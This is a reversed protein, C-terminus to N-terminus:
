WPDAKGCAQLGSEPSRPDVKQFLTSHFNRFAEVLGLPGTMMMDGGPAPYYTELGSDKMIYRNPGTVAVMDLRKVSGPPEDLYFLGHGPAMYPDDDRARGACFLDLYSAFAPGKLYRTHHELVGVVRGERCLVALTHGNGANILLLNGASREKVAPDALCGAVAAAATDMVLLRLPPPFQERLRTLASRMRLFEEPVAGEPYALSLPSPNEELKRRLLRLRTKRNSEGTRYVGHDQVAAGVGSLDELAVGESALFDLLRSLDLEDLVLIDSEKGGPLDEVVEVGLARVDELNNRLSYAARETMVARTGRSVIKRLAKSFPGGGVTYGDVRLMGGKSALEEARRAHLRCPSPLVLKVCNELRKSEEFLLIDETGVGIDVALIKM